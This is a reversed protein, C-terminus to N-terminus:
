ILLWMPDSESGDDQTTLVTFKLPPPIVITMNMAQLEALSVLHMDLEHRVEIHDPNQMHKVVSAIICHHRKCHPLYANLFEHHEVYSSDPILLIPNEIKTPGPKHDLLYVSPPFDLEICINDENLDLVFGPLQYGPGRFMLGSEVRRAVPHRSDIMRPANILTEPAWRLGPTTLRPCKLRLISLPVTRFSAWIKEMRKLHPLHVIAGVDVGLLHALCISKDDAKSTSRRHALTSINRLLETEDM